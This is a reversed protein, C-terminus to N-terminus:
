GSLGIYLGRAGRVVHFGYTYPMASLIGAGQSPNLGTNFRYSDM